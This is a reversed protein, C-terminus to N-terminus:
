SMSLEVNCFGDSTSNGHNALEVYLICRKREDAEGMLPSVASIKTLSIDNQDHETNVGSMCEGLDHSSGDSITATWRILLVCRTLEHLEVINQANKILLVRWGRNLRLCLRRSDGRRSFNANLHKCGRRRM